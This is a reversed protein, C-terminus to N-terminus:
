KKAQFPNLYYVKSTDPAGQADVGDGVILEKGDKSDKIALRAILAPKEDASTAVKVTYGFVGTGDKRERPFLFYTAGTNRDKGYLYNVGDKSTREFLNALQHREKGETVVLSKVPNAKVFDAQAAAAPAAAPAAPKNSYTPKSTPAAGSPKYSPRPTPQQISM